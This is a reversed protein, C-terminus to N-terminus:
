ARCASRKCLLTEFRRDTYERSWPDVNIGCCTISGVGTPMKHQLCPRDGANRAIVYVPGYAPVAKRKSTAM